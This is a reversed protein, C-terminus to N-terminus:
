LFDQRTAGAASVWGCMGYLACGTKAWSPASTRPPTAGSRAPRGDPPAAPHLGADGDRVQGFLRRLGNGPGRAGGRHGLRAQGCPGAGPFPFGQGPGRGCLRRRLDRGRARGHRRYARGARGYPQAPAGAGGPLQLPLSSDPAGRRGAPRGPGQGCLHSADVIMGLKEMEAVVRRGFDTLGGGDEAAAGSGLANRRNWTLGMLRVGRAHFSRLEDLSEGIAEGGEITLFAAVRGAAKADRVDRATRALRMRDTRALVGEM